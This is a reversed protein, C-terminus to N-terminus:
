RVKNKLGRFSEHMDLYHKNFEAAETIYQATLKKRLGFTEPTDNLRGQRKEFDLFSYAGSKGGLKDARKTLFYGHMANVNIRGRYEKDIINLNYYMELTNAISDRQAKLLPVDLEARAAAANILMAKYNKKARHTNIVEALLYALFLLVGFAAFLLLAAIVMGIHSLELRLISDAAFTIIFCVIFYGVIYAASSHEEDASYIGHFSDIVNLMDFGRPKEPESRGEAIDIVASIEYKKNELECVAKLYEILRENNKAM